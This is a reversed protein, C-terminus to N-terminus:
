HRWKLLIDTLEHYIEHFNSQKKQLQEYQLFTKCFVEM